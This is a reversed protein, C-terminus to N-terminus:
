DIRDLKSHTQKQTMFYKFAAKTILGKVLKKYVKKSMGSIEM